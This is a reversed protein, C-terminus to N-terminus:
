CVINLLTINLQDLWQNWIVNEINDQASPLLYRDIKNQFVERDSMSNIRKWFLTIKMFTVYDCMYLDYISKNSNLTVVTQYLESVSKDLFIPISKYTNYTAAIVYQRSNMLVNKNENFMLISQHWHNYSVSVSDRLLESNKILPM